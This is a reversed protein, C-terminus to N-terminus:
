VGGMVGEGRHATGEFQLGVYVKGAWHRKQLTYSRLLLFFLLLEQYICVLLKGSFLCFVNLLISAFCVRLYM